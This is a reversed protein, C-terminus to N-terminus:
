LETVLKLLFKQIKLADLNTIGDAGKDDTGGAVDANAIGQKTIHTPDSGSVGYKSPNATSQMILVVDSMNIDSDCNADGRKTAATSQSGITVKGNTAKVDYQVASFGASYGINIADNMVGSGYYTERKVAELKIASEAGQKASSLATGTITCFVGSKSIWYSADDVGTSWMVNAYGESKNISVDYIPLLSATQDSSDAKGSAIAGVKVDSIEIVSKDYSIAFDIGQIGSAPIDALSVDVTFTEGPNVTATGASIQVTEGAAFAPVLSTVSLSLMTAAIVGVVVKKTKM